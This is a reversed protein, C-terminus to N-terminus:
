PSPSVATNDGWDECGSVASGGGGGGGGGVPASLRKRASEADLLTAVV